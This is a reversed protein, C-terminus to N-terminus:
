VWSAVHQRQDRLPARAVQQPQGGDANGFRHRMYNATARLMKVLTARTRDFNNM